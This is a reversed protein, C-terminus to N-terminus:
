IILPITKQSLYVYKKLTRLFDYSSEPYADSTKLINQQQDQDPRIRISVIKDFFKPFLTLTKLKIKLQYQFTFFYM